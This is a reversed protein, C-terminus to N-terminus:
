KGDKSDARRKQTTDVAFIVVLSLIMFTLVITEM